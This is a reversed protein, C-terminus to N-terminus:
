SGPEQQLHEVIPRFERAMSTPDLPGIHKHRIRGTADIVFTEPVGYVGWDIGVDGTRDSAIAAYPDGHRALWSLADRPADKYNLGIVPVDSSEAWEMWLPHELRCPVCWSAFVNVITVQGRLQESTVLQDASRLSPLSFAPAPQDILPSPVRSPDLRLGVAFVVILLGVVFVPALLLWRSM